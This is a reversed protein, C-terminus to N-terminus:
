PPLRGGFVHRAPGQLEVDLSGRAVRLALPGGPLHIRVPADYPAEGMLALLAATAGAGTGCALTRGAGREWVVLDFAGDPRREVLEVNSGGPLAGSVLPGLRDLREATMLPGVRIAHPNGIGMRVFRFEEGDLEARHEGVREARGLGLTVQAVRGDVAVEAERLGADTDIAYRAQAVGDRLALHLAVCRLGNGCMEPRSGDANEVIMAARAGPSRPPAVTLVGDAGIGFHRDCLARTLEGGAPGEAEVVVFDNGTGEYKEFDRPYM